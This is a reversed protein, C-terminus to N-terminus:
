MNKVFQELAETTRAGEHTKLFEGSPSFLLYCPVGRGAAPFLSGLMSGLKGENESKDVQIVAPVASNSARVSKALANFAPAAHRCHPCFSGGMMVVMPRSKLDHRFRGRSDFDDYELFVIAKDDFYEDM